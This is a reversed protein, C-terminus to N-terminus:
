LGLNFRTNDVQQNHLMEAESLLRNYIRISHIKGNFPSGSSRKGIFNTNTGSGLSDSSTAFSASSLDIVSQTNNVSITKQGTTYNLKPYATPTSTWVIASSTLLGMALNTGANPMYVVATSTLTYDSIAVEITGTDASISAFDSNTLYGGNDGGTQVYNDGFVPNNVGAFVYGGVKDVWSGSVNGKDIGDLWLTLGDTIYSEQAQGQAMMIQRRRQM